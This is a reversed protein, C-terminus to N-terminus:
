SECLRSSEVKMRGDTKCWMDAMVGVIIKVIAPMVSLSHNIEPDRSTDAAMCAAASSIRLVYAM